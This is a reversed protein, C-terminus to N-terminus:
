IIGNRTSRALRELAVWLPDDLGDFFDLCTLNELRTIDETSLTIRIRGKGTRKPNLNM